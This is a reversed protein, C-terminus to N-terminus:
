NYLYQKNEKLFKDITEKRQTLYYNNENKIKNLIDVGLESINQQINNEERKTFLSERLVDENLIFLEEKQKDMDKIINACNKRFNIMVQDFSKDINENNCLKNFINLSKDIINYFSDNNSNIDNNSIFYGSDKIDIEKSIRDKIKNMIESIANKIYYLNNIMRQYDEDTLNQIIFYKNEIKKYLNDIIKSENQLCEILNTEFNKVLLDVQPKILNYEKKYYNNLINESEKIIKIYSNFTHNLYYISIETLKSKDSNLSESLNNLNGFLEYILNHSNRNYDYINNNLINMKKDGNKIENLLQSIKNKLNSTEEFITIPLLRLKELSLTSDFIESFDKYKVLSNLNSIAENLEQTMNDLSNNIKKFLETALHNGSESLTILQNIIKNFNLSSEKSTLLNTLKDEIKLNYNAEFYETNLGSNIILDM